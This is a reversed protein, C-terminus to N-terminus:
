WSTSISPFARAGLETRGKHAPKSADIEFPVPESLATGNKGLSVTYVGETLGSPVIFAHTTSMLGLLVKLNTLQM